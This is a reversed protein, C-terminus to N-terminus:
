PPPVVAGHLLGPGGGGMHDAYSGMVLYGLISQNASKGLRFAITNSGRANAKLSIYTAKSFVFYYDPIHPLISIKNIWLRSVSLWSVQIDPYKDFNSVRIAVHDNNEHIFLQNIYSDHALLTIPNGIAQTHTLMNSQNFGANTPFEFIAGM